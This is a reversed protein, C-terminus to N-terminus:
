LFQPSTNADAIISLRATVYVRYFPLCMYSPTGLIRDRNRWVNM